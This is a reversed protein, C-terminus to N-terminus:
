KVIDIMELERFMTIGKQVIHWPMVLLKIEPM